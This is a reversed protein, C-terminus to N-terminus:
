IMFVQLQTGRCTTKLMDMPIRLYPDGYSFIKLLLIVLPYLHRGDALAVEAM